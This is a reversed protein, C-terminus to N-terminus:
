FKINVRSGLNLNPVIDPKKFSIENENIISFNFEDNSRYSSLTEKLNDGQKNASVEIKSNENGSIINNEEEREKNTLCIDQKNRQNDSKSSTSITKAEHKLEDLEFKLNVLLTQMTEMKETKGEMYQRLENNEIYINEFRKDIQAMKSKLMENEKKL